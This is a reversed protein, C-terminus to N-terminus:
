HLELRPDDYVQEWAMENAEPREASKLWVCGSLDESFLWYLPFDMAQIM